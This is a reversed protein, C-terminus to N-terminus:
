PAAQAPAGHARALQRVRESSIGFDAGVDRLTRGAAVAAVVNDIQAPCLKGPRPETYRPTATSPVALVVANNPIQRYPAVSGRLKRSRLNSM